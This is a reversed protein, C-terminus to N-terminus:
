SSSLVSARRRRHFAYAVAALLPGWLLLPLYCAYFIVAELTGGQTPFEAPLPEGGWTQGAFIGSFAATWLITLFVAGLAAPVVAAATPVRRGRLGPIWRPFREGWGAILGLATFAIAEAGVSLCVIYLREGFSSGDRFAAPLRWIGSPLVTFPITLAAIRAWRPVGPVATHASRWMARMRDTTM